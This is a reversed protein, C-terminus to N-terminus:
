DHGLHFNVSSSEFKSPPPENVATYNQNDFCMKVFPSDFNRRDVYRRRVDVQIKRINPEKVVGKVHNIDISYGKCVIFIMGSRFILTYKFRRNFSAIM